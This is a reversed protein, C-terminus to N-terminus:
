KPIISNSTVSQKKGEYYIVAYRTAETGTGATTPMVLFPITNPVIEHRLFSGNEGNGPMNCFLKICKAVDIASGGGVAMISDCKENRFVGVGKVVSEYDPNPHFDSFRVMPVKCTLLKRNLTVYNNISEGCVLLVKKKDAFWSDLGSYRDT